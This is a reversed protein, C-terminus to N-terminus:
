TAVDVRTVLIFTSAVGTIANLSAGSTQYLNVTVYDSTDDVYVITRSGSIATAQASPALIRDRLVTTNSSASDDRYIVSMERYGASDAEWEQSISIEYYGIVGFTFRDTNTSASHITGVDYSETWASPTTASSTGIANNATLYAKVGRFAGGGAMGGDLTLKVEADTDNRYYLENDSKAYLLGYGTQASPTAMEKLALTSTAANTGKIEVNTAGTFGTGTAYQIRFSGGAALGSVGLENPIVRKIATGSNDYLLL